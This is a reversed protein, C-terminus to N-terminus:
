AKDSSNTKRFEIPNIVDVPLPSVSPDASIRQSEVAKECVCITHTGVNVFQSLMPM